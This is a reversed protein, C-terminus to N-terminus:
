RSCFSYAERILCHLCLVLNEALINRFSIMPNRKGGGHCPTCEEWSWRVSSGGWGGGGGLRPAAVGAGRGGGAPESTCLRSLGRGVLKSRASGILNGGPSAGGGKGFFSKQNPDGLELFNNCFIGMFMWLCGYVGREKKMPGGRCSGGRFLKMPGRGFIGGLIFFPIKQNKKM